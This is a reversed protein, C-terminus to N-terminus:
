SNAPGKVQAGVFLVEITDGDAGAAQLAIGCSIATAGAAAVVKGSGSSTPMLEAGLTIAESAVAKCKGFVQIAVTDGSSAAQTAFGIVNETIATTVVVQNATSDLKVARNIGITGGAKFSMLSVGLLNSDAM